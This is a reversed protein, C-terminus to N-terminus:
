SECELITYNFAVINLLYLFAENQTFSVDVNLFGATSLIRSQLPNVFFAMNYEAKFIYPTGSMQYQSSYTNLGGDGRESFSHSLTLSLTKMAKPLAFHIIFFKLM